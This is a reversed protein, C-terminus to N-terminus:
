VLATTTYSTSNMLNVHDHSHNRDDRCPTQAVGEAM